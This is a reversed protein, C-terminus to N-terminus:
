DDFERWEEDEAIRADRENRAALEDGTLENGDHDFNGVRYVGGHRDSRGTRLEEEWDVPDDNVGDRENLRALESATLENGDHDFNGVRYVGGRQDSRGVRGIVEKWYAEKRRMKGPDPPPLPRREDEAEFDRDVSSRSKGM